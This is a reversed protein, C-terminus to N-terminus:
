ALLEHSTVTVKVGAAGPLRVAIIVNAESLATLEGSEVVRLPVPIAETVGRTKPVPDEEEIVVECDSVTLIETEAGEAVIKTGVPFTVRLPGPYVDGAVASLSPLALM